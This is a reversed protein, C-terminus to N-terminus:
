PGELLKVRDGEKLTVIAKKRRSTKGMFRGLRRTKGSLNQTNVSTVTVGFAKEVAEKIKNKNARIDVYFSYKNSNMRDGTAKETIIPSKIISHYM